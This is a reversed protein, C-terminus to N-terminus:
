TPTGFCLAVILVASMALHGCSRMRPPGPLASACWTMDTGPPCPLAASRRRLIGTAVAVLHDVAETRDGDYSWPATFHKKDDNSTSVCSDADFACSNLTDNVQAYASTRTLGSRCQAQRAWSLLVRHVLADLAGLTQASAFRM